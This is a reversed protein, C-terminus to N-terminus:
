DFLGALRVWMAQEEIKSEHREKKSKQYRAVLLREIILSSVTEVSVDVGVQTELRKRLSAAAAGVTTTAGDFILQIGKEKSFLSDLTKKKAIAADPTGDGKGGLAVKDIKSNPILAINTHRAGTFHGLKGSMAMDEGGAVMFFPYLKGSNPRFPAAISVYQQAPSASPNVHRDNTPANVRLPAGKGLGVVQVPKSTDTSVQKHAETLKDAVKPSQAQNSKKDLVDQDMMLIRKPKFQLEAALHLVAARVAGFGTLAGGQWGVLKYPQGKQFLRGLKNQYTQFETKHVFLYILKSNNVRADWALKNTASSKLYNDIAEASNSSIVFLPVTDQTLTTAQDHDSDSFQWERRV